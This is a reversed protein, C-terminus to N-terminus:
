EEHKIKKLAEAKQKETLLAWLIWMIDKPQNDEDCLLRQFEHDAQSV